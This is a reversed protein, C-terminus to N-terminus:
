FVDTRENWLHTKIGLYFYKSTENKILNTEQDISTKRYIAGAFVKLHLAPNLIYGFETKNQFLKGLNGQLTYHEDSKNEPYIYNNLDGGYHYTDDFDFGKKAYTLINNWYLRKYRYQTEVLFETFNAGFPHALSEYDHTYNVLELGHSYTYPRVTNYELRGFIKHENFERFSKVGLQYGFKNAWYGKENFFKNVTMEDLILQGYFHIKYPAEYKFNLGLITNSGNSGAEYEVTKFFILPNLFNVDFGRRNENYWVVTEFFGLHLKPLAHWDIFHIASYKKKFVGNKQYEPRINQYATWMTTYKVKWFTAEIKFYPYVTANDSLLLSRYGEGIFHKGHGLEFFFYKSPKYALYGEAYPYDIYNRDESKNLGFGPVIPPYYYWAYRDLFKPFRAWNEVISSSFSVQKGIQGEVRIGRTNQFIYHDSTLNDKGLRWDIIPDITVFYNKDQIIFLHENFLKKGFKSKKDMLLDTYNRSYMKEPIEFFHLPKLGTHLSDPANTILENYSFHTFPTKLQSKEIRTILDKQSFGTFPLFILFLLIFLKKM